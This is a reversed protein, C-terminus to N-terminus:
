GCRIVGEPTDQKHFLKDKRSRFPVIGFDSAVMNLNLILLLLLLPILSFRLTSVATNKHVCGIFKSQTKEDVDSCPKLKASPVKRAREDEVLSCPNCNKLISTQQRIYLM